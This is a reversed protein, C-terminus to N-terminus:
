MILLSISEDRKFSVEYFPINYKEAVRKGEDFSVERYNELDQKNGVIIAQFLGKKLTRVKQIYKEELEKLSQQSTIQYM